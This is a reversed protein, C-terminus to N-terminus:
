CAELRTEGRKRRRQGGEGGGAEGKDGGHQRALLGRLLM